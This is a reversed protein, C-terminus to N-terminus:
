RTVEVSYLVVHDRISIRAADSVPLRSGDAPSYMLTWVEYHGPALDSPLVFAVNHRITNGARWTSTPWFGGVPTSDDQIAIEGQPTMLYTGITYDQQVDQLARWHTSVNMISGPTTLGAPPQPDFGVLVIEDGLSLDLYYEPDESVSPADATSFEILRVRDSFQRTGIRYFETNMWWEMARVVNTHYAGAEMLLVATEHQRSFYDVRSWAEKNLVELPDTSPDIPDENDLLLENQNLELTYWVARGKYYNLMFDFYTRNNLFVVPDPLASNQLQLRMAHLAPNSGQFRQDPYIRRLGTWTLVGLVLVGFALFWALSAKNNERHLTRILISIFGACVALLAVALIWDPEGSSAQAWAFDVPNGGMLLRWHGLIASYGLTWLAVTWAAGPIGTDALVSYYDLPNISVAGIQVIFGALALIAVAIWWPGWRKGSIARDVAPAVSVMLFPTVPVLYRPGWNTGGFWMYERVLTYVIVFTLLLIIPWSTQLRRKRTIWPAALALLFIPSHWFVGKGPSLLLGVIGERMLGSHSFSVYAQSMQAIPNFRFVAAGLVRTYLYLGIFAVGGMVSVMLAMRLWESRRYPLRKGGILMVLLLMPIGVVGSEKTLISVTGGIFALSLWRHPLPDVDDLSQRWRLLCYGSVFLALGGLPERFYTKSYPWAITTLGYLLAVTVAVVRSYSMRRVYIFLVWATTSTVILNLLLTAHANGIRDISDAIWFIPVSLLPQMPEVYTHGPWDLDATENRMVSGRRAFSESTDYLFLEDGSIFTLSATFWYVTLLLGLVAAGAMHDTPSLSPHNVRNDM